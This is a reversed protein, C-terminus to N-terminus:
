QGNSKKKQLNDIKKGDKYNTPKINKNIQLCEKYIISLLKIEWKTSFKIKFTIKVYKSLYKTGDKGCSSVM